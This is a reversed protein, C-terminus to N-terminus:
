NNQQSTAEKQSPDELFIQLDRALKSLASGKAWESNKANSCTTM